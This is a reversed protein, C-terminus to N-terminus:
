CVVIENMTLTQTDQAKKFTSQLDELRKQIGRIFYTEKEIEHGINQYSNPHEWFRDRDVLNKSIINM